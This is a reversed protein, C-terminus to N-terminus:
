KVIYVSYIVPIVNGPARHRLTASQHNRWPPRTHYYRFWLYSRHPILNFRRLYLHPRLKRRRFRLYCWRLRFYRRRFRLYVRKSLRLSLCARARFRRPSERPGAPEPTRMPKRIPTASAPPLNFKRAGTAVPHLRSPNQRCVKPGGIRPVHRERPWFGARNAFNRRIAAIKLSGSVARIGGFIREFGHLNGTKGSFLKCEPRFRPRIAM